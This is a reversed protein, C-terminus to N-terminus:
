SAEVGLAKLGNIARVFIVQTRAVKSEYSELENDSLSEVLNSLGKFIEAMPEKIKTCDKRTVAFPTDAATIIAIYAPTQHNYGLKKGESRKMKPNESWKKERLWDLARIGIDKAKAVHDKLFVKVVNKKIGVNQDQEVLANGKPLSLVPADITFNVDM